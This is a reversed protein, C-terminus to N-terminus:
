KQQWQIEQDIFKLCSLIVDWLNLYTLSWMQTVKLWYEFISQRWYTRREFWMVCINECEHVYFHHIRWFWPCRRTKGHTMRNDFFPNWFWMSHALLYCISSRRWLHKCSHSMVPATALLMRGTVISNRPMGIQCHLASMWPLEWTRWRLWQLCHSPFYTQVDLCITGCAISCLCHTPIQEM